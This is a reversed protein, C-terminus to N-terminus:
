LRDQKVILKLVFMLVVIVKVYKVYKVDWCCSSTSTQRRRSIAGTGKARHFRRPGRRTYRLTERAALFYVRDSTVLAM